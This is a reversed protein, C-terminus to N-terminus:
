DLARRLASLSRWLFAPSWVVRSPLARAAQSGAACGQGYAEAYPRGFCAVLRDVVELNPPWTVTLGSREKAKAVAIDFGEPKPLAALTARAKLLAARDGRLFAITAEAYLVNEIYPEGVRSLDMLDIATPTQGAAARLQGEHWMLSRRQRDDIKGANETRYAALAEAAALECGPRDALPRWGEARDQDFREYDLALMGARDYGCAWPLPVDPTPERAQAAAALASLALALAPGTWNM